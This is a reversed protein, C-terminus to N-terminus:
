RGKRATSGALRPAPLCAPLSEFPWALIAAPDVGRARLLERAHDLLERRERSATWAAADGGDLASPPPMPTKGRRNEALDWMSLRYHIRPACQALRAGATQADGRLFNPPAAEPTDHCPGCRRRFAGLPGAEGLVAQESRPAPLAVAAQRRPKAGLASLLEGLGDWAPFTAQARLSALDAPIQAFDDVLTISGRDGVISLEALRRGDALRAHRRGQRPQFTAGTRLPALVIGAPAGSLTITDLRGQLGGGRARWYAGSLTARDNDCYFSWRGGPKSQTRCALEIRDSKGPRNALVRDLDDLDADSFLGALGHLLRAKDPAHWIELPARPQLPDIAAPIDPLRALEEARAAAPAAVPASAARALREALPDHNPLDPNPIALGRPWLRRWRQDLQPALRALDAPEPLVGSLALRLAATFLAQRCSEGAAGDGCADRWIRQWVPLLNARDTANDYFYAIDTGGLPIGHLNGGGDRLRRAIAPNAPTEDWLPRAFIPAANQHCALCLARRAYVLEARGDPRYDRVLQYEFRGLAENYSIVELVAGKEHYGIFLRDRMPAVGPRTAGDVTVVIRPFRFFDPAGSARQLSRGLPIALSKIPALGGPERLLQSDLRALLRTFPFPVPGTGVFEDFRSHGLPPLDADDGASAAQASPLGFLTLALLMGGAWTM